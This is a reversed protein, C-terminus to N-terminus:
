NNHHSHKTLYAFRSFPWSMKPISRIVEWSGARGIRHYSTLSSSLPRHASLSILIVNLNSQNNMWVLQFSVIQKLFLSFCFSDWNFPFSIPLSLHRYFSDFLVRQVHSLKLKTIILRTRKFGSMWFISENNKIKFEISKLENKKESEGVVFFLKWCFKSDFPWFYFKKSILYEIEM